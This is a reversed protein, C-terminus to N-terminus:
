EVGQRAQNLLAQAKAPEQFLTTWHRSVIARPSRKTLDRIAETVYAIRGDDDVLAIVDSAHHLLVDLRATAEQEVLRNALALRELAMGISQGFVALSGQEPAGIVDPTDIVLRRPPRSGPVTVVNRYRLRGDDTRMRTGFAGIGRASLAETTDHMCTVDPQEVLRSVWGDLQYDIDSVSTVRMLGANIQSLTRERRIADKYSSILLSIRFGFLAVLLLTLAVFMRSSTFGLNNGKLALFLPVLGCLALVVLVRVRSTSGSDAEGVPPRSATRDLVAYGALCFFLLKCGESFGITLMSPTNTPILDSATIAPGALLILIGIALLRTSRNVSWNAVFWMRATTALLLLGLAALATLICRDLLMLDPSTWVPYLLFECATITGATLVIASDVLGAPDRASHRRQSALILTAGVLLVSTAADLLHEPAIIPNPALGLNTARAASESIVTLATAAAVLWWATRSWLRRTTAIVAILAATGTGAIWVTWSHLEAMNWTLLFVLIVIASLALWTTPARSIKM